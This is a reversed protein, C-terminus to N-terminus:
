GTFTLLADESRLWEEDLGLERALPLSHAVWHPQPLPTPAVSAYFASGLASMAPKLVPAVGVLAQSYTSIRANMAAPNDPWGPRPQAAPNNAWACSEAFDTLDAVPALPKGSDLSLWEASAHL